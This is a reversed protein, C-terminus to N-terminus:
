AAVRLAGTIPSITRGNKPTTETLLAAEALTILDLVVFGDEDWNSDDGIAEDVCERAAAVTELRYLEDADAPDAKAQLAMIRSLLESGGLAVSLPSALAATLRPRKLDHSM